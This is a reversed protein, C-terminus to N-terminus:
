RFFKQIEELSPMGSVDGYASVSVKSRMAQAVVRQIDAATVADIRACLEAPPIRHGSILLQARSPM